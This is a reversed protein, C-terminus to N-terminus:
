KLYPGAFPFLKCASLISILCFRVISESGPHEQLVQALNHGVSTLHGLEFM